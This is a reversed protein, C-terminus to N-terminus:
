GALIYFTDMFFFSVNFQNPLQIEIKQVVADSYTLYLFVIEMGQKIGGGIAIVSYVLTIIIEGYKNKLM